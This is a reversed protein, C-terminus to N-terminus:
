KKWRYIANAKLSRTRCLEVVPMGAQWQQLTALKQETSVCSRRGRQVPPDPNM